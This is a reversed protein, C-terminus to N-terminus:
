RMICFADLRDGRIWMMNVTGVNKLTWIYLRKQSELQLGQLILFFVVYEWPEIVCLKLMGMGFSLFSPTSPLSPVLALCFGLQTFMLDQLKVDSMRIM